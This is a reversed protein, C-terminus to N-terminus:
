RWSRVTRTGLVAVFQYMENLAIRALKQRYQQPSDTALIQTGRVDISDQGRPENSITM